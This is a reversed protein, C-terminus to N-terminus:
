LLGEIAEVRESDIHHLHRSLESGSFSLLSRESEHADGGGRGGASTNKVPSMGPAAASGATSSDHNTFSVDGM